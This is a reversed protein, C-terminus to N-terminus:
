YRAIKKDNEDIKEPKQLFKPLNRVSFPRFFKSMLSQKFNGALAIKM